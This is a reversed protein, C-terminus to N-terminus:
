NASVGRGLRWGRLDRPLSNRFWRNICRYVVGGMRLVLPGALVQERFAPRAAMKKFYGYLAPYDDLPYGALDLRHLTIYWSIDALTVRNAILYEREALKDSLTTLANHFRTFCDFRNTDAPAHNGPDPALYTFTITRLDAHLEDELAMLEHMEAIEDETDPLFSRESEAFRENLYEIIDNSEIHVDGDHVLVPVVGRSNIGLYWDSRQENKMLNIPHSTFSIGLEGM